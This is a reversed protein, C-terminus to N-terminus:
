GAAISIRRLPRRRKLPANLWARFAEILHWAALRLAAGILDAAGWLRGRRSRPAAPLPAVLTRVPEVLAFALQAPDDSRRVEGGKWVIRFGRPPRRWANGLRMLDRGCRTCRAFTFGQNAVPDAPLLHTGSLCFISM